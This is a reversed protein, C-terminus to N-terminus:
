GGKRAPPSQGLFSNNRSKGIYTVGNRESNQNGSTVKASVAYRSKCVRRPYRVRNEAMVSNQPSQLAESYTKPAGPPQPYTARERQIHKHNTNNQEEEIFISDGYNDSYNRLWTEKKKWIYLSKQEERQCEQEWEKFLWDEVEPSMTKEKLLTCMQEDIRLYKEQNRSAKNKMIQIESKFRYIAADKRIERDEEIEDSILKPRFKRPLIPNIKEVWTEYISVTNHFKL